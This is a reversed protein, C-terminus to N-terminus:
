CNSALMLRTTYQWHYPLYKIKRLQPEVGKIIDNKNDCADTCINIYEIPKISNM